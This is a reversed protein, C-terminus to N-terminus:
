TMLGFKKMTDKIDEVSLDDITKKELAHASLTRNQCFLTVELHNTHGVAHNIIKIDVVVRNRMVGFDSTNPIFHVPGRDRSMNVLVFHPIHGLWATATLESCTM